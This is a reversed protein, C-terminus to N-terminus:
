RPGLRLGQLARARAPRPGRRRWAGTSFRAGAGVPCLLLFGCLGPTKARAGCNSGAVRISGARRLTTSKSRLKGRKRVAKPSVEASSSCYKSRRWAPCSWARPPNLRPSLGVKLPVAAPRRHLRRPIPVSQRHRGGPLERRLQVEPRMSRYIPRARRHLIRKERSLAGGRPHRSCRRSPPTENGSWRLQFRFTAPLGYSARLQARDPGPSRTCQRRLM